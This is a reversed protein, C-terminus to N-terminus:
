IAQEHSVTRYGDAVVGFVVPSLALLSLRRAPV